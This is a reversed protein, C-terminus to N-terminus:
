MSGDYNKFGVQNSPSSAPNMSGIWKPNEGGRGPRHYGGYLRRYMDRHFAAKLTPTIQHAQM